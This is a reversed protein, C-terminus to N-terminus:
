YDESTLRRRALQDQYQAKNRHQEAELEMQKRKQEGDVKM